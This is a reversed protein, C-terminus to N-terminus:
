YQKDPESQLIHRFGKLKDFQKFYELREELNDAKLDVWGVVGKVFPNSAAMELLFQTEKESQDAQVAVCGDIGNQQLVPLLDTPLFDQKIVLMEDDIWSDRVPDFIWFHQHADIKPM